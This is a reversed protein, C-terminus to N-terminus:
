TPMGQDPHTFTQFPDAAAAFLEPVATLYWYTDAVKTHGLYTSLAPLLGAVDMAEQQWITLRASAFTHRLDHMRPWREGNEPEWGLRCLLSRFTHRVTSYPLPRAQDSLLFAPALPVPCCRQRAAKYATLQQQASEHLPVLRTKRYKTERVTLIGNRLDVDADELRLAESIRLGTCALLGFLTAYTRPRLGDAPRLNTCASLLEAVEQRSYIHPEVRRHAPGLIGKPPVQTRPDFVAVYRAFCRVIELRKAWYVATAHQPLRAWRLALVTDLPCGPAERDAFEAFQMLQRGATELKYGLSRRHALYQEALAIIDMTNMIVGGAM